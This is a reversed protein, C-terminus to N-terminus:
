FHPSFPNHIFPITENYYWKCLEITCKIENVFDKCCYVRGLQIIMDQGHSSSTVIFDIFGKAESNQAIMSGKRSWHFKCSNKKEVWIIAEAMFDRPASCFSSQKRRGSIDECTTEMKCGYITCMSVNHYWTLLSISSFMKEVLFHSVVWPIILDMNKSLWALCNRSNPNM